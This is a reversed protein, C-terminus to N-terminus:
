VGRFRAEPGLMRRLEAGVDVQRIKMWRREEEETAQQAVDTLRSPRARDGSESEQLVSDFICFTHWERSVRRFGIRRAETSFLSENMSHGYIGEGIRVEHGSQGHFPDGVPRRALDQGEEDEGEVTDAHQIIDIVM